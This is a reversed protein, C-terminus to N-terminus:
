SRSKAMLWRRRLKKYSELQLIDSKLGSFQIWRWLPLLLHLGCWQSVPQLISSRHSCFWGQDRYEITSVLYKHQNSSYNLIILTLILMYYAWQLWSLGPHKHIHIYVSNSRSNFHFSLIFPGFFVPQIFREWWWLLLETDFVPILDYQTVKYRITCFWKTQQSVWM